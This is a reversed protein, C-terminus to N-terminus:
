IDSTKREIIDSIQQALHSFYGKAIATKLRNVFEEDWTQVVNLLNVILKKGETRETKYETVMEM